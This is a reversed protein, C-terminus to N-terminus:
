LSPACERVLFGLRLESCRWKRRERVNQDKSSSPSSVIPEKTRNDNLIGFIDDM